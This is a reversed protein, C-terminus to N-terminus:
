LIPLKKPPREFAFSAPPYAPARVLADWSEAPRVLARADDPPLNPKDHCHDSADHGHAHVGGQGKGEEDLDHSHEHDHLQSALVAGDHEQSTTPLHSVSVLNAFSVGAHSLAIVVILLRALWHRRRFRPRHITALTSTM